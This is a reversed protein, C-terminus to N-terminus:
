EKGIGFVNGLYRARGYHVTMDPWQVFFHQAFPAVLRGTLSPHTVRAFSELYVVDIRMLRGVICFPVAVGAGTTVIARPRISRLLRVALATNRMLNKANRNTPHYAFKVHEGRLLSRSDTRDFTVWVRDSPDWIDKLQSLQLLHGGSSSVLLVPGSGHEGSMAAGPFLPEILRQDPVHTRIM